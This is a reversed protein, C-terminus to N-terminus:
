DSELLIRFCGFFFVETPPRSYFGQNDHHTKFKSLKTIM